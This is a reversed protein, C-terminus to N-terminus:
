FSFTGSNSTSSPTDGSKLLNKHNLSNIMDTIASITEITKQQSIPVMKQSRRRGNGSTKNFIGNTFSLEFNSGDGMEAFNPAIAKSEPADDLSEHHIEPARMPVLQEPEPTLMLSAFTQNFLPGKQTPAPEAQTATKYYQGDSPKRIHTM